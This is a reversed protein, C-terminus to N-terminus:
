QRVSNKYQTPTFNTVKKFVRSFYHPNDFSLLDSIETFTYRKQRILKKAEKIKLTTIYESITYGTATKFIKSLYTRSYSMKECIDACTIVSCLNNEIIEIMEAVLHNEMSEKDPFVGSNKQNSEERMLMILFEELHIRILQQSGIPMSERPKLTIEGIPMPMFANASEAIMGSIYKRLSAPVTAIKKRFFSMAASSCVFATIFVNAASVGDANVTHFELPKHFAIQGERLPFTEKGATIQVCGKDVYVMEWFDHSEGPFTFDKDFENYHISVIRNISILNNLKHKIFNSKM